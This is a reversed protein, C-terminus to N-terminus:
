RPVSKRVENRHKLLLAADERVHPNNTSFDWLHGIALHCNHSGAKPTHDAGCLVIFNSPDLELEPFLNFQKVHHVQLNVTTGCAECYTHTELFKARVAPWRPSRPTGEMTVPPPQLSLVVVGIIILSALIACCAKVRV